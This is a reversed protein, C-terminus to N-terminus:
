NTRREPGIYSVGERGRIPDRGITVWGSTRNFGRIKGAQIFEELLYNKVMDFSNDAKQIRILM